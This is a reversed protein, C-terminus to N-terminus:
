NLDNTHFFQFVARKAAGIQPKENTRIFKIGSIKCKSLTQLSHFAIDSKTLISGACVVLIEKKSGNGYLKSSVIQIRDSLENMAKDVINKCISCESYFELALPAVQSVRAWPNDGNYAWAIVDSFTSLSLKNM